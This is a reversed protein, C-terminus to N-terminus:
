CGVALAAGAASGLPVAVSMAEQDTTTTLAVGAAAGALSGLLANGLRHGFDCRSGYRPIAAAVGSGATSGLAVGFVAGALDGWEPDSGVAENVAVGVFGGAVGGAFWGLVGWGGRKVAHRHRTGRPLTDAAAPITDGTVGPFAPLAVAPASDFAGARQQAAAPVAAFVAVAVLIIPSRKM